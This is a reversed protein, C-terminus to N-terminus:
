SSKENGHNYNLKLHNNDSSPDITFHPKTELDQPPETKLDSLKVGFVGNQDLEPIFGGKGTKKVKVTVDEFKGSTPEEYSYIFCEKGNLYYFINPMREKIAQQIIEPREKFWESELIQEDSAVGEIKNM